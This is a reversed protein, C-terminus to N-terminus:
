VSNLHSAKRIVFILSLKIECLVFIPRFVFGDNVLHMVTTTSSSVGVIKGV